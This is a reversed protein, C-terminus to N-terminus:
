PAVQSVPVSPDCLKWPSFGVVLTGRHVILDVEEGNIKLNQIVSASCSRTKVVQLSKLDAYKSKPGWDELFSGYKYDRCPNELSCGWLAYAEAYQHAQLHGFFAELQKEERYNRFLFYLTGCVVV